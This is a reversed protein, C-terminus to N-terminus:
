KKIKTGQLSHYNIGHKLVYVTINRPGKGARIRVTALIQRIKL